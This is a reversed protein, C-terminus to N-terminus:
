PGAILPHAPPPSILPRPPAFQPHSERGSDPGPSKGPHSPHSLLFTAQHFSKMPGQARLCFISRLCSFAAALLGHCPQLVPWTPSSLTTLLPQDPHIRLPSGIPVGSLHATPRPFPAHLITGLSWRAQLVQFSPAALAQSSFLAPVLASLLKARSLNPSIRLWTNLPSTQASSTSKPTALVFISKGTLPPIPSDSSLTTPPLLPLLTHNSPSSAPSWAWDM